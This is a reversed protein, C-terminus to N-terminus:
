AVPRTDMPAAFVIFKYGVFNWVLGVAAAVVKALTAWGEPRLNAVPPIYTTMVVVVLSNIVVGLVTVVAFKGADDFKREGVRKFVWFKNWLYSNSAAAIFGPINVGGLQFGSTIGTVLSILNFIGADISFNLFGVAAFRSFQTMVPLFRSLFNGLWIGFVWVVPIVLPLGMLIAYNKVGLNILTPVAFVGVLFGVLAAIAYDKKTISM